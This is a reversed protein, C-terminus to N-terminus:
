KFEAARLQQALQDLIGNVYKHGETAGFTKALELAENIVVRYPVDPRKVLEYVALRLVALEIMTLDDLPRDSVSQILADIEELQPPLQQMVETFYDADCKVNSSNSLYQAAIEAASHAQFQWQYLAQLALRRALQRAKVNSHKM